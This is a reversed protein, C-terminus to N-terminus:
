FSALFWMIAITLIGKYPFVFIRKLAGEYFSVKQWELPTNQDALAKVLM